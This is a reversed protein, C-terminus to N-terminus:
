DTPRNTVSRRKLLNDYILNEETLDERERELLNCVYRGREGIAKMEDQENGEGVFCIIM